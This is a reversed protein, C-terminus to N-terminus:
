GLDNLKWYKQIWFQKGSDNGMHLVTWQLFIGTFIYFSTLNIIDIIDKKISLSNLNYNKFM